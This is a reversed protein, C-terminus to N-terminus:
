KKAIFKLVMRDIFFLGIFFVCIWPFFDGFKSYFSRYTLLPVTKVFVSREGYPAQCRVRGTADVWAASGMSAVRGIWRRSEIARFVTVQLSYYWHIQSSFWNASAPSLIVAGGLQIGERVYPAVSIEDCIKLVLKQEKFEFVKEERGRTLDQDDAAVSSIKKAYSLSVGYWQIIKGFVDVVRRMPIYEGFPILFRKQYYGVVSGQADTFYWMNYSHEADLNTIVGTFAPLQVEQFISKLDQWFPGDKPLVMPVANETFVLLEAEQKKADLAMARYVRLATRQLKHDWSLHASPDFQSQLLAPRIHQRCEKELKQLHQAERTGAIELVALFVTIIVMATLIKKKEAGAFAQSIKESIFNGPKLFIVVLLAVSGSCFYVMFNACQIGAISCMQVLAPMGALPNAINYSVPPLFWLFDIGLVRVFDYLTLWCPGLLVFAWRRSRTFFRIMGAQLVGLVFMQLGVVFLIWRGVSQQYAMDTLYMGAMVHIISFCIGAMWLKKRGPFILISLFFPSYVLLALLASVPNSQPIFYNPYTFFALVAQITILGIIIIRQM